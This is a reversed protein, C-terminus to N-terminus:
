ERKKSESEGKSREGRRREKRDRGREKKREIGRDRERERAGRTVRLSIRGAYESECEDRRNPDQVRM